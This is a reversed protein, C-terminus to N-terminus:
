SVHSITACAQLGLVQFVLCCSLNWAVRSQITTGWGWFLFSYVCLFFHTCFYDSDNNTHCYCHTKIFWIRQGDLPNHWKNLTLVRVDFVPKGAEGNAFYHWSFSLIKFLHWLPIELGPINNIFTNCSISIIYYNMTRRVKFSM